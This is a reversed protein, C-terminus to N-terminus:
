KCLAEKGDFKDPEDTWGVQGAANRVKVWWVSQPKQATGWSFASYDVSTYLKGEFWAKTFGEGQYTLLYLTQGPKLHLTGSGHNIDVTRQFRVTGPKTTVVVGTMARVREGKRIKYAIPADARRETRLTVLDKAVWNRYVCEEFPCAGFDLFPAPPTAQAPDGATAFSAICFLVATILALNLHSLM